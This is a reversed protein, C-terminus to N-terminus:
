KRIGKALVDNIAGRVEDNSETIRCPELVGLVRSQTRLHTTQHSRIADLGEVICLRLLPSRDGKLAAGFADIIRHKTERDGAIALDALSTVAVSRKMPKSTYLRELLSDIDQGRNAVAPNVEVVPPQSGRERRNPHELRRRTM